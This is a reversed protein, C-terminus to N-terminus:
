ATLLSFITLKGCNEKLTSQDNELDEEDDSFIPAVLKRRSTELFSLEQRSETNLVSTVSSIPMTRRKRRKKAFPPDLPIKKVCGLFYSSIRTQSLKKGTPFDTDSM